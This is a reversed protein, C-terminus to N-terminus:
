KYLKYIIYPVVKSKNTVVESHIILLTSKMTNLYLRTYVSYEEWFIENDKLYTKSWGVCFM